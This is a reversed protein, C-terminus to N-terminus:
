AAQAVERLSESARQIKERLLRDYVEPIDDPISHSGSAWRRVTRPNVEMECALATQWNSGFIVRGIRALRERDM